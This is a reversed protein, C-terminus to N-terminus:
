EKVKKIETIFMNDATDNELLCIDVNLSYIKDNLEDIKDKTMSWIPMNLLTNHHASDFKENTLVGILAKKSLKSLKVTHKLWYAIFRAREKMLHLEAYKTEIMVLRRKEFLGLRIDVFLEILQNVNDYRKIEGQDDWVTFNQTHQAVLKFDKLLQDMTRSTTTRPCKIEFLFGDDTSLDDYEKIFGDDELKNLHDLYKALQVRVPLATIKITTTNVIELKGTFTSQNTEHNFEVTGDYGKFYPEISPQKKGTIVALISKRIDDTHYPLIDTAHGTGTGKTGNLLCIPMLPYLYEPEIKNGDDYQDVFILNDDKNFLKDFHETLETFIYRESSSENSLISGFQGDPLLLNMNNAGPYAQAMKVATDCLSKEGHRYHTRKAVDAALQAVKESKRPSIMMIYVIKRQSPKLGDVISPIARYNDYNSFERLDSDIFEKVQM